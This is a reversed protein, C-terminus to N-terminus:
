LREDEGGGPKAKRGKGRLYQTMLDPEVPESRSAGLAEAIKRRDLPPRSGAHGEVVAVLHWYLATRGNTTGLLDHCLGAAEWLKDRLLLAGAVKSPGPITFKEPDVPAKKKKSV